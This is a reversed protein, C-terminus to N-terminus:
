KDHVYRGPAPPELPPFRKSGLKAPRKQEGGSRQALWSAYGPWWSGPM